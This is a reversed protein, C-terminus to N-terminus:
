SLRGLPEFEIGPLALLEPKVLVKELLDEGEPGKTSTLILLGHKPSTGLVIGYLVAEGNKYMAVREGEQLGELLKM